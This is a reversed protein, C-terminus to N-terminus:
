PAAVCAGRGFGDGLGGSPDLLAVSTPPLGAGAVMAMGCDHELVGGGASLGGCRARVPIDGFVLLRESAALARRSRITSQRPQPVVQTVMRIASSCIGGNLM